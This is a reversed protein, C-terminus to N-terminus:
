NVNAEDYITINAGALILDKALETNSGTFEIILINSKFLSITLTYSFEGKNCKIDLSPKDIM